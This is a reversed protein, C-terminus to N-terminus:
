GRRREDGPRRGRPQHRPQGGIAEVAEGARRSPGRLLRRIYHLSLRLGGYRVAEQVPRSPHALKYRLAWLALTGGLGALLGKPLRRRPLRPALRLADRVAFALHKRRAAAGYISYVLLRVLFASLGIYQYDLLLANKAYHYGTELRPSRKPPSRRQTGGRAHWVLFRRLVYVPYGRSWARLSFETDEFYIVYRNELVGIDELVDGRVAAAAFCVAPVPYLLPLRGLLREVADSRKVCCLMDVANGLRDVVAGIGDVVDFGDGSVTALGVVPLKELVLDIIRYLNRSTVRTDPNIFLIRRDKLGGLVRKALMLALNNAPAFGLNRDLRAAIYQADSGRIVSLMKEFGKDGSANDVVVILVRRLDYDQEVLSRALQEAYAEANYLVVVVVMRPEVGVLLRKELRTM